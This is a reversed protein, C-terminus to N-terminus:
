EIRQKRAEAKAAKVGQNYGYIFGLSIAEIAGGADRHIAFAESSKMSYRRNIKDSMANIKSVINDEKM